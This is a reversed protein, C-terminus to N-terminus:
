EVVSDDARSGNRLSAYVAESIAFFELTLDGSVNGLSDNGAVFRSRWELQDIVQPIQFLDWFTKIVDKTSGSYKISARLSRVVGNESDFVWNFGEIKVSNKEFMNEIQKQVSLKITEQNLFFLQTLTQMDSEIETLQSRLNEHNAIVSSLKSLKLNKAQLEELIENQWTWLPFIVFKLIVIAALTALLNTRSLLEVRM